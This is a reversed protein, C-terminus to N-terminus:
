EIRKLDGYLITPEVGVLEERFVKLSVDTPIPNLLFIKKKLFFAVIIEAFTNGGIYNKVDGKPKNIVVIADSRGIKEFHENMYVNKIKMYGSQESKFKKADEATDLKYKRISEPILVEHGLDELEKKVDLFSRGLSLSGCLAIRM